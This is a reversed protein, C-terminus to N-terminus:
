LIRHMLQNRKKKKPKDVKKPELKQPTVSVKIVDEFSRNMALKDDYKEFDNKVLMAASRENITADAPQLQLNRLSHKRGAPAPYLIFLRKPTSSVRLAPRAPQEISPQKQLQRLVPDIYEQQLKKSIESKDVGQKLMKFIEGTLLRYLSFQKHENPIQNYLAAGMKSAEAMRSSSKRFGEFAPDKKTREGTLRCAPRVINTGCWMFGCLGDRTGIFLEPGKNIM